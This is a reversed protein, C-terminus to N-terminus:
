YVFHRFTRRSNIYVRVSTSLIVKKTLSSRDLGPARGTSEDGSSTFLARWIVGLNCSIPDLLMNIAGQDLYALM